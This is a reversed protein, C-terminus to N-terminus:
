RSWTEEFCHSSPLISPELVQSTSGTTDREEFAQIIAYGHMPREGLMLLVSIKFDGKALLIHPGPFLPQDSM